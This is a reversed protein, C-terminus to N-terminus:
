DMEVGAGSLRGEAVPAPVCDGGWIEEIRLKKTKTLVEQASGLGALTNPGVSLM